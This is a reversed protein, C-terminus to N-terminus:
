PRNFREFLTPEMERMLDLARQDDYQHKRRIEDFRKCVSTDYDEWGKEYLYDMIEAIQQGPLRTYWLTRHSGLEIKARWGARTKKSNAPLRGLLLFNCEILCVLSAQTIEDKTEARRMTQIASEFREVIQRRHANDGHVNRSAAHSLSSIVKIMDKRFQALTVSGARVGNAIGYIGRFVREFSM